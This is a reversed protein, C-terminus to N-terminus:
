ISMVVKILRKAIFKIIKKPLFIINFFKIVSKKLLKLLLEKSWMGGNKMFAHNYVINLELPSSVSNTKLRTRWYLNNTHAIIKLEDNELKPITPLKNLWTLFNELTKKNKSLGNKYSTFIARTNIGNILMEKFLDIDSFSIGELSVPFVNQFSEDWSSHVYVPIGLLSAEYNVSTLPDLSILFDQKSLLSYLGYKSSPYDRTILTSSSKKILKQLFKPYPRELKGKGQYFAINLKKKKLLNGKNEFFSDKDAEIIEEILPFSPQIYLQKFIRSVQPSYVLEREGPLRPIYPINCQAFMGPLALSYWIINKAKTRVYTVDNPEATDPILATCGEPIRQSIDLSQYAIDLENIKIYPDSFTPYVFVKINANQAQLAIDLMVKIGNSVNSRHIMPVM